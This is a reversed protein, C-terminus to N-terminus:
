REGTFDSPTDTNANLKQGPALPENFAGRLIEEAVPVSSYFSEGGGEILIAFAYQPHDYPAFGVYWAHLLGQNGFQATGTKGASTVKLGNLPRASGSEVTQRMGERVIQLNSASIINQAAPEHPLVTEEGTVPNVTSWALSPHWLTGGNAITASTLAMQLPTALLFGQGISAQYTDGIYWKEKFREEKWAPTPVTGTIEGPIDIGTKKGLGFTNYYSALSDIGLGRVGVQDWGGGVAYFFINNSEAIAKRTNTLGHVKWDPFRFQGVFIAEPTTFSTNGTIVGAQLGASAVVPKITSGPAYAGQLTRNLLPNAPNDLLGQYTAKDIGSGFLSAKYDPLSVMAKVAGTNPDLVVASAGLKPQPGFKATRRDLEHQLADAVVQQLKGDISLKLTKGTLPESNTRDPVLRVVEGQANVEARQIGSQGSLIDNYQKELGTRGIRASRAVGTDIAAQDPRGVYGILQGFSPLDTYKRVPLEQLLVGPVDAFWERYLLGQDKTLNTQIAYIDPTKTDSTQNAEIAAIDEESIGAKTRLLTYVPERDKKKLPLTQPNIALALQRDNQALVTGNADVVLGRDAPVSILRLSNGEARAQNAGANEVQLHYAQVALVSFSAALFLALGNLKRTPEATDEVAGGVTPLTPQYDVRETPDSALSTANQTPNGFLDFSPM